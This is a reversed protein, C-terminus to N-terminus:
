LNNEFWSFLLGEARQDGFSNYMLSLLRVCNAVAQDLRSGDFHRAFNVMDLKREFEGQRVKRIFEIEWDKMQPIQVDAIYVYDGNMNAPANGCPAWRKIIPEWYYLYCGMLPSRFIAFQTLKGLPVYNCLALPNKNM